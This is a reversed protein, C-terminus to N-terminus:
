CSHFKMVIAPEAPAEYYKPRQNLEQFGMYKYFKQAAENSARVELFMQGHFHELLSEVLERAVGQRRFERAVVLNLLECEDEALRRAVVFGAVRGGHEAVRLDYALYDGASWQAAEPSAAQIAAIAELDRPEGARIGPM